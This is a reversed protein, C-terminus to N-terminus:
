ALGAAGVAGMKPAAVVFAVYEHRTPSCLETLTYPLTVKGGCSPLFCGPSSTTVVPAFVLVFFPTM